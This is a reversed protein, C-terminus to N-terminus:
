VETEKFLHGNNTLEKMEKGEVKEEGAAGKDIMSVNKQLFVSNITATEGFNNSHSILEVTSIEDEHNEERAPGENIMLVNEQHLVSNTTGRKRRAKIFIPILTAFGIVCIIALLLILVLILTKPSSVNSQYSSNNQGPKSQPDLTSNGQLITVNSNLIYVPTTENNEKTGPIQDTTFPTINESHDIGQKINSTSIFVKNSTQWRSSTRPYLEQKTPISHTHSTDRTTRLLSSVYEMRNGTVHNKSTTSTLEQISQTSSAPVAPLHVTSGGDTTNIQATFYHQWTINEEIRPKSTETNLVTHNPILTPPLNKTSSIRVTVNINHEQMIHTLATDKTTPLFSSIYEKRKATVHNKSTTSTIEQISHTASASVAPLHVTSGGDTPNRQSTLYHQWTTNEETRSKSTETNLVTHNPILTPPLNKTSSLSPTTNLHRELKIHTLATDNTTPLFSSIYEKRKATVHNKSTTSTIEQISHTASAPVDPLHVTSGGDTPNRQATMYHQWTTNEETQSKSTETNLVTRHPILTPSLNEPSSPSLTSNIHSETSNTTTGTLINEHTSKSISSLYFETTPSALIYIDVSSTEVNQGDTIICWYCGTDGLELHNLTITFIRNTNNFFIRNQFGEQVFGDNDILRMCGTKNWRCWYIWSDSNFFKPVRCQIMVLEGPYRNLSKTIQYRIKNSPNLIHIHVDKWNSGDEFKGTGCRYFGFDNMKINNVLIKFDSTNSIEQILVRKLFNQHVYGSSNVMTHCSPVGMTSMKCFYKWRTNFEQPVPCNIKISGKLHTVIVESSYPIKDGESVKVNIPYFFRSNDNGIGCQYLGSDKPQLNLMNIKFHDRYNQLHTGNAYGPAIYNTSIITICAKRVMKCWFKRGHINAPIPNYYCSVIVSGGLAGTIEGPGFLYGSGVAIFFSFLIITKM